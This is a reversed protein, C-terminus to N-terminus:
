PEKQNPPLILSRTGYKIQKQAEASSSNGNELSKIELNVTHAMDPRGSALLQQALNSLRTTAKNVDGDALEQRAQEQMRYMSLRSMAKVLVQPPPEVDPNEATPRTLNFAKELNPIPRTPVHFNLTGEALTITKADAPIDKVLFEMIISLSRQLPIHGLSIPSNEQMVSADPALRFMYRMEVNPPTTYDFQVNSAYINTLGKFHSEMLNLIDAPKSAFFSNGGTKSCVDDIFDDQWENGIGLSSISIGKQNAKDALQLCEKEDGYTRGDTILIMHSSQNPSLHLNIEQMGAQLGQFIETGGGTNLMNVRAKLRKKDSARTSPVIVEARDNFSVVSVIDSPSLGDILEGAAAKVMDMRSGKMSTSNDIILSINLAPKLQTRDEDEPLSLFDLLIYVLQQSDTTPLISRSYIANILVDSPPDIGAPLTDDYVARKGPDSLIEYAEQVHLFLETTSADLDDTNTDPHLRRAAQHYASRIQQPTANKPVGLRAYYNDLFGTAM